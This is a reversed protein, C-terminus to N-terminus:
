RKGEKKKKKFIFLEKLKNLKRKYVYGIGTETIEGELISRYNKDYFIRIYRNGSENLKWELSVNNIINNNGASREPRDGSNVEGGIVVTIRDNFFRKSFSFSYNTYTNGTTANLGDNIGINVDFNKIAEGSIDNIKADLFSSLASTATVGQRGGLYTGTIIMAVAYKSLTEQDLENLQNQIISNEPSSMTFDIGLNNVTGGLVVGTNFVIPQISNDEFEVSVTTKELATIDLAPDYLDGTWTLRGGEQIYFTKLPIIPLTLKLQGGNLKYIGTVNLGSENNYTANLNGDGDFIIYNERQADFDLAAKAGEKIYINFNANINGLDVEPVKERAITTTDNFNVFEVLGDLEKETEFATEPLVYAFDSNGLVTLDGTMRLNDLTGRIGSRLDVFMKGYITKGAKYPTNLIEYNSANLRLQLKPNLPQTIDATGSIVFPSNAKDYIHFRDFKAISNEITIKEEAPHLTAGLSSIYIYTSDLKLYGNSTLSDTTGKLTIESDAYGNILAVDKGIFAQAMELPLRTLSLKGNLHEKDGATYSGELHAVARSNHQLTLELNHKDDQEMMYTLEIKENGVPTGEYALSDVTINGEITNGTATSKHNLNASLNGAIHPIGPISGTIHSLAINFLELTTTNGADADTTTYLHLGSDNSGKLMIDAEFTEKGISIYNDKNLTFPKGSILAERDFNIRTRKPAFHATLGIRSDTESINDRLKLEATLSDAIIDGGLTASYSNQEELSSAELNSISANYSFLEGDQRTAIIISDIEVANYGFQSVYGKINIGNDPSIDADLNIKETKIGNYALYNHLINNKGSHLQLTMHPLLAEFDTLSYMSKSSLMNKYLRPIDEFATFLKNYGCDMRGSIDLDGNKVKLNTAQPNTDFELLLREPTFRNDATLLQTDEGTIRISHTENLDTSAAIDIKTSAKLGADTIGLEKLDALALEISTHNDIGDPTFRSTANIDFSLNKDNGEIEILSVTNKQTAKANLSRFRYDAYYLTDIALNVDYRTSDCFLDLGQGRADLHMTLNHLPVDPIIHNLALSKIDANATYATENINYTATADIEGITGRLTIAAAINQMEYHIEGNAIVKDGGTNGNSRYGIIRPIDEIEGSLALHATRKKAKIINKIYGNANITGMGPVNVSITDINIDYINGSLSAEANLTNDDFIQLKGYAQPTMFKILDRKDLKLSLQATFKKDLPLVMTQWPIICQGYIHSGNRSNLHLEHLQLTDSNSTLRATANDIAIGGPQELALHTITANIDKQAFLLNGAKININELEIHELPATEQTGTGKNYKLERCDLAIEEIGYSNAPINICGNDLRLKEIYLAASLTDSPVSLSIRSEKISGSRLNIVWQPLESDDDAITDPLTINIDAEQIHLQRIDAVSATLDADRAVLRAYGVKGDIRATSIMDRTHIGIEELSLHNIEVDGRFLPFLSIDANVSKGEIYISDNKSISFDRIKLRLPFTLSASGIEIDYGSATSVKHRVENVIFRQVPPLYLLSFLLLLIAVPTGIAIMVIKAVKQKRSKKEM